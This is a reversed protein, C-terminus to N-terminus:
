GPIDVSSRLVERYVACSLRASGVLGAVGLQPHVSSNNPTSSMMEVVVLCWGFLGGAALAAATMLACRKM